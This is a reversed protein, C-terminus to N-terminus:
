FSRRSRGYRVLPDTSMMFGDSPPRIPLYASSSTTSATMTNGNRHCIDVDKLPAVSFM